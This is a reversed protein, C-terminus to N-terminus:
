KATKRQPSSACPDPKGGSASASDVPAETSVLGPAGAAPMGEGGHAPDAATTTTWGAHEDARTGRAATLNAVAGSAAPDPAPSPAPLPPLMAAIEPVEDIRVFSYGKEKLAPVLIKVMDVTGGNAPDGGISYPDHMLIVGRGVTDIEELYLEACKAVTLVIGDKGASWCDWDAARHPGMHDGIDWYINGVYKSMASANLANASSWDFDGYPARFLFRDATVFPAILEDTQAVESVTTADDLHWSGTSQGTLSAHTQTHNGIVHGDAVLQTLVTTDHIMKGNLFFGAAIGNNELYTSLESTRPGPGDDFTLALTKPPLSTGTLNGTSIALAGSCVHENAASPPQCGAIAGACAALTASFIYYAVVHSSTSIAARAKPPCEM